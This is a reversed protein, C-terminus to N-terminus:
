QLLNIGIPPGIFLFFYAVGNKLGHLLMSTWISGTKERLLCLFISLVFTDVGVNWQMHVIGFVISTIIASFWFGSRERLKGFLYGRFLLEEAIPPLVVLAVFALVLDLGTTLNKFGVDQAQNADYWPLFTALSSLLITGALYGVVCLALIGLHRWKFSQAIGLLRRMHGEEQPRRLVYRVFWYPIGIVIAVAVLYLTANMLLQGITRETLYTTAAPPLTMVLLVIVLSALGLLGAVVWASIGLARILNLIRSKVPSNESM